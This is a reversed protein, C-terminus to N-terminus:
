RPPLRTFAILGAMGIAVFAPGGWSLGSYGASSDVTWMLGWIILLGSTWGLLLRSSLFKM